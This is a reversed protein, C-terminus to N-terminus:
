AVAQRQSDAGQEELPLWVEVSTGVGPVTRLVCSGGVSTVLAAATALGLGARRHTESSKFLPEFAHAFATPALGGARDSVKIRAFGAASMPVGRVRELVEGAADEAAFRSRLKSWPQGDARVCSLAIDVTGARAGFADVANAVLDAITRELSAADIQADMAEDAVTVCLGINAPLNDRINIGAREVLPGLREVRRAGRGAQAFLRIRDLASQCHQSANLIHLAYERRPDDNALDELLLRSFGLEAACDNNFDHVLRGAFACIERTTKRNAEFEKDRGHAAIDCGSIVIGGIGPISVANRM